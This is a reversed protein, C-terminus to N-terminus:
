FDLPQHCLTSPPIILTPYTSSKTLSSCFALFFLYSHRDFSLYILGEHGFYTYVLLCLSTMLDANDYMTNETDNHTEVERKTLEKGLCVWQYWIVTYRSVDRSPVSTTPFPLFFSLSFIFKFRNLRCSPPRPVTRRSPCSQPWSLHLPSRAAAYHSYRYLSTYGPFTSRGM